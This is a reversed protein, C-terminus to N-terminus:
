ASRPQLDFNIRPVIVLELGVVQHSLRQKWQIRDMRRLGHPVQGRHGRLELRIDGIKVVEVREDRRGDIVRQLAQPDGGNLRQVIEAGEAGVAPAASFALDALTANSAGMPVGNDVLADPIAPDDAPDVRGRHPAQSGTASQSSDGGKNTGRLKHANLRLRGADRGPFEENTRVEDIKLLKLWLTQWAIM